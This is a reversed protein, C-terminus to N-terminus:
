KVVPSIITMVRLRYLFLSITIFFTIILFVLFFILVNFVEYGYRLVSMVSLPEEGRMRAGVLDSSMYNRVYSVLGEPAFEELGSIHFDPPFASM